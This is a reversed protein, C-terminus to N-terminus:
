ESSKGRMNSLALIDPDVVNGAVRISFIDGISQDFVTEAPVRSDMCSLVVAFGGMLDSIGEM